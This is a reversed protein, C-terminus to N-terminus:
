RDVQAQPLAEAAFEPLVDTALMGTAPTSGAVSELRDSM